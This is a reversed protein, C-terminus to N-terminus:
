FNTADRRIKQARDADVPNINLSLEAGDDGLVPGSV